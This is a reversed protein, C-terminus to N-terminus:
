FYLADQYLEKCWPTHQLARYFVSKLGEFDDIMKMARMYARWVLPRFRLLSHTCIQEFSCRLRYASSTNAQSINYNQQPNLVRQVYSIESYISFIWCCIEASTPEILDSLVHYFYMRFPHAVNITQIYRYYWQQLLISNPFMTLCTYMTKNLLSYDIHPCMSPHWILISFHESRNEELELLKRSLNILKDFNKNDSSSSLLTILIEFQLWILSLSQRQSANFFKFALLQTFLTRIFQLHSVDYPVNASPNDCGFHLWIPSLHRRLQLNYGGTIIEFQALLHPYQLLLDSIILSDKLHENLIPCFTHPVPIGLVLLFLLCLEFHVSEDLQHLLPSIDDFLVIREGDEVEQNVKVPLMHYSSRLSELALWSKEVNNINKAMDVEFSDYFHEAPIPDQFLGEFAAILEESFISILAPNKNQSIFYNFGLAGFEGIKPAHSDWFTELYLRIADSKVKELDTGKTKLFNYEIILQFLAILKEMHDTELLFLALQSYLRLQHQSGLPEPLRQSPRVHTSKLSDIKSLANSYLSCIRHQGLRSFDAQNYEFYMAWFTIKHPFNFVIQDLAERLSNSDSVNYTIYLQRLLLEESSPNKEIAKALVAMQCESVVKEKCSSGLKARQLEVLELWSKIDKPNNNVNKNLTTIKNIIGSTDNINDAIKTIKVEDCPPIFIKPTELNAYEIAKIFFPTSAFNLSFYRDKVKFRQNTFLDGLIIEDKNKLYKIYPINIKSILHAGRLDITFTLKLPNYKNILIPKSHSLDILAKRKLRRVKAFLKTVDGKYKKIKKKPIEFKTNFLDYDYEVYDEDIKEKNEPIGTTNESIESKESLDPFSEINLWQFDSPNKQGKPEDISIVNSSPTLVVKDAM